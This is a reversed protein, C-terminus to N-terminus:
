SALPFIISLLLTAFGKRVVNIKKNTEKNVDHNKLSWKTHM